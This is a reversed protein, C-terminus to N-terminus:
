GLSGLRIEWPLCSKLTLLGSVTWPDAAFRQTIEAADEAQIVLLTDSTGELPGGVIVFGEADLTNMFAAHARWDVQEELPRPEDWSPGHTRLVVFPRPM